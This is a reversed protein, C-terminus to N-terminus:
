LRLHLLRVNCTNSKPAGNSNVLEQDSEEIFTVINDEGQLVVCGTPSHYQFCAHQCDIYLCALSDWMKLDWKLVYEQVQM